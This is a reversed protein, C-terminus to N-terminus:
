TEKENVPSGCTPCKFFFIDVHGHSGSIIFLSGVDTKRIYRIAKFNTTLWHIPTKSPITSKDIYLDIDHNSPLTGIVEAKVGNAALLNVLNEGDEKTYLYKKDAL